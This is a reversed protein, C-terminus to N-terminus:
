RRFLAAHGELRGLKISQSRNLQRFFYRGDRTWLVRFPVKGDSFFTYRGVATHWDSKLFSYYTKEDIECPERSSIREMVADWTESEPMPTVEGATLEDLYLEPAALYEQKEENTIM